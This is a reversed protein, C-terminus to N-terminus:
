ESKQQYPITAVLVSGGNYPNENLDSFYVGDKMSAYAKMYFADYSTMENLVLGVVYFKKNLGKNENSITLPFIKNAVLTMSDGFFCCGIGQKFNYFETGLLDKEALRPGGHSYHKIVFSINIALFILDRDMDIAKNKALPHVYEDFILDHSYLRGPGYFVDQWTAADSLSYVFDSFNGSINGAKRFLRFADAIDTKGYPRFNTSYLTTLALNRLYELQLFTIHNIDTFFTLTYDPDPMQAFMLAACLAIIIAPVSLIRFV